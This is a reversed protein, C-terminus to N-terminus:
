EGGGARRLADVLGPHAPDNTVRCAVLPRNRWRAEDKTNTARREQPTRHECYSVHMDSASAVFGTNAGVRYGSGFTARRYTGMGTADWIRGCHPCYFRFPNTTRTM